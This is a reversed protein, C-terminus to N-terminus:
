NQIKPLIQLARYVLKKRKIDTTFFLYFYIQM